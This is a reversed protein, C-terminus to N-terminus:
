VASPREGSGGLDRACADLIQGFSSVLVPRAVRRTLMVAVAPVPFRLEAVTTWVVTVGDPTETFSLQGGEHVLPPFSRDIHYDFSHPRNCATIREWFCAGLCLVRRVAGAGYPAGDGPILLREALVLPIRTYNHSNSLWDFVEDIPAAITREITITEM